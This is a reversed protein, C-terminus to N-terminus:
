NRVRGNLSGFTHRTTVVELVYKATTSQLIPPHEFLGAFAELHVMFTGWWQGNAVHCCDVSIPM